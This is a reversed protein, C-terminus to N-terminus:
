SGIAVFIWDQSRQKRCEPCRGCAVKIYPKDFGSLHDEKVPNPLIKKNLCM